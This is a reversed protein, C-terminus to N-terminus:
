EDREYVRVYDIEMTAPFANPDIGQVGGWSGGVAINMILHFRKDFPWKEWGSNENTFTFYFVDDIYFEIRDEFWEIAYTHFETIATPVPLAASKQTGITHNYAKTHVSGHVPNPDYGVHEMIDIEGSSPWGGYEWDTPLMWIAPWTGRGSPLKASVEIRGYLWDGRNLTRIRASTYERTGDPGTYQKKKAIIYLKGNQVYSNDNESIYYQLENNGGGQGNIEHEWKQNDIASGNFEDNWVLTYGELNPVDDNEDVPNGNEDSCFTLSIFTFCFILAYFYSLLRKYNPLMM